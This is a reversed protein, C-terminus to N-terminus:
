HAYRFRDKMKLIPREFGYFSVTVVALSLVFHLALFAVGAVRAGIASWLLRALLPHWLYMGYSVKGMYRLPASELVARELRSPDLASALVAAWAVAIVTYYLGLWAASKAEEHYTKQPLCILIVGLAPLLARRALPVIRERELAVLAGASLADMRCFPLFYYTDSNPMMWAYAFRTVAAVVIAAVLLRKLEAHGHRRVLLPWLAYFQEEVALSWLITLELASRGRLLLAFNSLYLFYPLWGAGSPLTDGPRELLHTTAGLVVLVVLYVFSLPVIRLFRRIWFARLGGPERVNELLISTILFGSLVFFLDVGMDASFSFRWFWSAALVDDSVRLTDRTHCFFVLLM